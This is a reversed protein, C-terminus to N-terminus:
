RLSARNYSDRSDCIELWIGPRTNNAISQQRGELEAATSEMTVAEVIGTPTSFDQKKLSGRTGENDADDERYLNRKWKIAGRRINVRLVRCM